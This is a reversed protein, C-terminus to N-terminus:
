DLLNFLTNLDLKSFDINGIITELLPSLASVDIDYGLVQKLYANILRVMKTNGNEDETNLDDLIKQALEGSNISLNITGDESYSIDKIMNPSLLRINIDDFLTVEGFEQQFLVTGAAPLKSQYLFAPVEGIKCDQYTVIVGTQTLEYKLKAVVGAKLFNKYTMDGYLNIISNETDVDYGIRNLVVQNNKIIDLNNLTDLDIYNYIMAKTISVSANSQEDITLTGAIQGLLLDEKSQDKQEETIVVQSKYTEIDDYHEELKATNDFMKYCYFGCAALLALVALFIILGTHKKKQKVPETYTYSTTSDALEVKEEPIDKVKEEVKEEEKNNLTSDSTEESTVVEEKATEVVEEKTEEIAPTNEKVEEVKPEKKAAAKKNAKKSTSKKKTTGEKKVTEPADNKAVEKSTEEDKVAKKTSKKAPAKKNTEQKKTEVKKTTTKKKPTEKVKDADSSVDKQDDTKKKAM